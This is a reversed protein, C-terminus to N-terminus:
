LSLIMVALKRKVFEVARTFVAPPMMYACCDEEKELLGLKTFVCLVNDTSLHSNVGLIAVLEDYTEELDEAKFPGKNLFTIVVASLALFGEEDDSFREFVEELFGM